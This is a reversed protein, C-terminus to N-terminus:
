KTSQAKKFLIEVSLGGLESQMFNINGRHAEVIQRCIALGLGAGGSNRNRSDDLRFFREGLQKLSTDPVAPASDEIKLLLDNPSTLQHRLCVQIKGPSNTYRISNELLNVLVQRLREIDADILVNVCDTQLEISLGAYAFKDEFNTTVEKILAALDCPKFQYDLAQIDARALTYLEDILKNLSMLQRHLLALNEPTIPRVGDQLAELQARMVSIPTRLEHSTDAVWQRRQQEVRELKQALQNFSHALRGLEDSRNEPLRTEFNGLELQEAGIVLQQIPQRFHRAMLMAVGASFIVAVCLIIAISDGQAKVFEQAMTDSPLQPHSVM